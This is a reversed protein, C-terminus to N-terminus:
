QMIFMISKNINQVSWSITFNFQELRKYDLKKRRGLIWVFVKM